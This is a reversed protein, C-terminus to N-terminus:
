PTAQWSFVMVHTLYGLLVHSSHVTLTGAYHLQKVLNKRERFIGMVNTTLSTLISTELLVIKEEKSM